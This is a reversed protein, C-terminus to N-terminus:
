RFLSAGIPKTKVEGSGWAWKTLNYSLYAKTMRRRGCRKFMKEESVVPGILTLNWKLSRHSPPVLTLEFPGAWMILIAAMDM